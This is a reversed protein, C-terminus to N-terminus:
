IHLTSILSKKDFNWWYPVEIMTIGEQICAIRKEEDRERYSRQFGLHYADYYHQQGQYEFALSYKPLFIDLQM